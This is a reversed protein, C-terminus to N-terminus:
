LAPPPLLLDSHGRPLGEPRRRARIRTPSLLRGPLQADILAIQTCGRSRADAEVERM